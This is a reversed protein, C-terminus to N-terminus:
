IFGTNNRMFIYTLLFGLSVDSSSCALVSVVFMTFECTLFLVRATSTSCELVSCYLFEKNMLVAM